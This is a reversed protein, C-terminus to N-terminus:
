AHARGYAKIEAFNMMTQTSNRSLRIYRSGSIGGPFTLDEAMFSAGSGLALTRESGGIVNQNVDLIELKVGVMRYQYGDARNLLTIKNISAYFGLDVVFVPPDPHNEASHAMTYPDLDIANSAPFPGPFDQWVHNITATAYDSRLLAAEPCPYQTSTRFM